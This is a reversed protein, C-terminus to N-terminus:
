KSQQAELWKFFKAESILVKRGLRIVAGSEILGNGQIDGISSKRTDAKFILNRISSESFAPNSESFQAVTYYATPLQFTSNQFYALNDLGNSEQKFNM